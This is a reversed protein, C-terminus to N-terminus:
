AKSTISHVHCGRGGQALQWSRKWAIAYATYIEIREPADPFDLGKGWHNNIAEASIRLDRSLLSIYKARMGREEERSELAYPPLRDLGLVIQCYKRLPLPDPPPVYLLDPIHAM